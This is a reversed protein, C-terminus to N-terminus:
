KAASPKVAESRTSMTGLGSKGFPLSTADNPATWGDSVALPQIFMQRQPPFCVGVAACGQSIFAVKVSQKPQNAKGTVHQFGALDVLLTVSNEFVEVKGFTPDDVSKGAPISLALNQKINAPANKGASQRSSKGAILHDILEVRLRDRYLYFGPAITVTLEATFADRVRLKPRFADIPDLLEAPTASKAPAATATTKPSDVAYGLQFFVSLVLALALKLSKYKLKHLRM